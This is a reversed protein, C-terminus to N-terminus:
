PLMVCNGTGQIVSHDANAVLACMRTAGKPRDKINYETFPNPGGYMFWPGSGPIGAQEPPVTDFFFHVHRGPLAPTYGTTTYNVKYQAEDLEISTIMVGYGSDSLARQLLPLYLRENLLSVNRGVYLDNEGNATNGSFTVRDVVVSANGVGGTIREIWLAGGDGNDAKNNTFTSNRITVTGSDIQIRGAGGNGDGATARNDIFTSNEILLSSNDYLEIDFGGGNDAFNSNFTSESIIVQSGGYVKLAIGGGNNGSETGDFKLNEIRLRAGDSIVGSIGAGDGSAFSDMTLNQLVLTQGSDLNLPLVPNSGDPNLQSLDDRDFTFGAGLMAAASDFDNVGGQNPCQTPPSWGGQLVVTETITTSGTNTGGSMAPLVDGAEARALADAFNGCGGPGFSRFGALASRAPGILAGALAIMVVLPVILMSSRRPITM